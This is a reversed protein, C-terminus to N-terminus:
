MREPRRVGIQKREGAELTVHAPDVEMDPAADVLRVEYEGPPVELRANKKVDNVIYTQQGGRVQLIALEDASSFELTATGDAPGGGGRFFLIGGVLAAVLLVLVAAFIRSTKKGRPPAFSTDPPVSEDPPGPLAGASARTSEIAELANRV